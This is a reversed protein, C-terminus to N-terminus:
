LKKVDATVDAAATEVAGKAGRLEAILTTVEAKLAVFDSKAAAGFKAELVIGLLLCGVCLIIILLLM